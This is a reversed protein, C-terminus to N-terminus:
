ILKPVFLVSNFYCIFLIFLSIFEKNRCCSNVPTGRCGLLPLPSLTSRSVSLSVSSIVEINCDLKSTDALIAPSRGYLVPPSSPLYELTLLPRGTMMAEFGWLSPKHPLVDINNSKLLFFMQISWYKSSPKTKQKINKVFQINQWLLSVGNM